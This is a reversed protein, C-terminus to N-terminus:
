IRLYLENKIETSNVKREEDEGFIFEYEKTGNVYVWEDVEFFGYREMGSYFM